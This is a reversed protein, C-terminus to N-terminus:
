GELVDATATFRYVEGHSNVEESLLCRGWALWYLLEFCRFPFKWEGTSERTAFLHIKRSCTWRRVGRPASLIVRKSLYKALYRAVRHPGDVLRIDVVRGGGLADWSHSIWKQSIFQNVLIHLHPLGAKTFELIAIYLLPKPLERKLYTRFKAWVKGRIYYVLDNEGLPINKPDLTLTLFRTLELERVAQEIAKRLQVARRPGCV